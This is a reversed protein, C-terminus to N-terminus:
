KNEGAWFEELFSNGGYSYVQYDDAGLLLLTLEDLNMLKALKKAEERLEGYKASNKDIGFQEYLSNLEENFEKIEEQLEEQNLSDDIFSDMIVVTKTNNDWDVKYGMQELIARVPMYNSPNEEGDKVVSVMQNSSLNLEKGNYTVKNSNFATSKIGGAAFVGTICFSGVLLGALFSKLNIKMQIGGLIPLKELLLM